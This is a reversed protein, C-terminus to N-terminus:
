IKRSLGKAHDGLAEDALADWKGAAFDEEMQQDWEQAAFEEFWHRFQARKEPSLKEVASKLQEVTTIEADM